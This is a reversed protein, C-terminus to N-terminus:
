SILKIESSKIKLKIRSSEWVPKLWPLQTWTYEKNIYFVVQGIDNDFTM